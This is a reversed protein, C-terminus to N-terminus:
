SDKFEKLVAETETIRKRLDLYKKFLARKPKPLMRVTDAVYVPDRLKYKFNDSVKKGFIEIELKKVQQILAEKRQVILAKEQRDSNTFEGENGFNADVFGRRSGKTSHNAARELFHTNETTGKYM